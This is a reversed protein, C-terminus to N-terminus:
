LDEEAEDPWDLDIWFVYPSTPVLAEADGYVAPVGYPPRGEFPDGEIVLARATAADDAIVLAAGASRQFLGDDYPVKWLKPRLGHTGVASTAANPMHLDVIRQHRQAERAAAVRATTFEGDEKLTALASAGASTADSALVLSWARLGNEDVLEVEWLRV